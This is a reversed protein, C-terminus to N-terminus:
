PFPLASVASTRYYAVVAGPADTRVVAAVDLHSEDENQIRIVYDKEPFTIVDMLATEDLQSLIEQATFGATDYQAEVKGSGDLLFVGQIFSDDACTRLADQTIGNSFMPDYQLKWGVLEASETIRILSKAESAMDRLGSENCQEKMYEVTAVLQSEARNMDASAAFCFVVIMLVLGFLCEFPLVKKWSFKKEKKM